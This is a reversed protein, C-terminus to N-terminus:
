ANTETRRSQKWGLSAASNIQLSVLAFELAILPLHLLITVPQDQVATSPCGFHLNVFILGLDLTVFGGDSAQPRVNTAVLTQTAMVM